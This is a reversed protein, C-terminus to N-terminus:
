MTITNRTDCYKMVLNLKHVRKGLYKIEAFTYSLLNKEAMARIILYRGIEKFLHLQYIGFIRLTNIAAQEQLHTLGTFKSHMTYFALRTMRATRYQDIEQVFAANNLQRERRAFRLSFIANRMIRKNIKEVLGQIFRRESAENLLAFLAIQKQRANNYEDINQIYARNKALKLAAKRFFLLAMKERFLREREHQADVELRLLKVFVLKVYNQYKTAYYLM